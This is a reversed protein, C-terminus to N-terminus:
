KKKRLVWNLGQKVVVGISKLGKVGMQMSKNTKNISYKTIHVATKQTKKGFKNVSSVGSKTGKVMKDLVFGGAKVPTQAVIKTGDWASRGLKQWFSTLGNLKKIYQFLLIKALVVSLIYTFILNVILASNTTLFATDPYVRTIKDTLSIPINILLLCLFVGYGWSARLLLNNKQKKLLDKAWNHKRGEDEIHNYQIRVVELCVITLIFYLINEKNKRINSFIM